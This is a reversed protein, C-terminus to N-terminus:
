AMRFKRRIVGAVGVLGTGMLSLTGPEPTAAPPPGFGITETGSGIGLGIDANLVDANIDAGINVSGIVDVIGGVNTNTYAFSLGTCPNTFSLDLSLSAAACSETVVLESAVGAPFVGADVYAATFNLNYLGVITNGSLVPAALTDYTVAGTGAAVPGLDVTGGGLASLNLTLDDAYSKPAIVGLSVLALAAVFLKM